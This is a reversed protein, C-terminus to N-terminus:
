AEVHVAQPIRKGSRARLFNPHGGAERKGDALNLPVPAPGHGAQQDNSIRGPYKAAM